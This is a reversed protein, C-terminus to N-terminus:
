RNSGFDSSSVKEVKDLHVGCLVWRLPESPDGSHEPFQRVLWTATYKVSENLIVSVTVSTELTTPGSSETEEPAPLVDRAPPYASRLRNEMESQHSPTSTGTVDPYSVAGEYEVRVLRVKAKSPKNVYDALREDLTDMLHDDCRGETTWAVIGEREPSFIYPEAAKRNGEELAQYFAVVTEEPYFPIFDKGPKEHCLVIYPRQAVFDDAFAKRSFRSEKCLSSRGPFKQHSIVQEVFANKIEAFTHPRRGPARPQADQPVVSVGEDGEWRGIMRYGNGEWRYLSFTTVWPKYDYGFLGIEPPKGKTYLAPVVKSRGIGGIGKGPYLDPLLRYSIVNAPENPVGPHMTEPRINKKEELVFAGLPYAKGAKRAQRPDTLPQDFRYVILYETAQDSDLNGEYWSVLDWNSPMIQKALQPVAQGEFSWLRGRFHRVALFLVAAVLLLLMVKEFARALVGLTAKLVNLTFKLALVTVAITFLCKIVVIYLSGGCLSSKIASM